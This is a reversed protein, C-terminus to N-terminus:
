KKEKSTGYLLHIKKINLWHCFKSIYFAIYFNYLTCRRMKIENVLSYMMTSINYGAKKKQQVRNVHSLKQQGSTQSFISGSLVGRFASMWSNMYEWICLSSLILLLFLYIITIPIQSSCCLFRSWM